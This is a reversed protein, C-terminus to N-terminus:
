AFDELIIPKDKVANFKEHLRQSNFIQTWTFGFYMDPFNVQFQKTYIHSSIYVQNKLM